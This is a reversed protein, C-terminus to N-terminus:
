QCSQVPTWKEGPKNEWRSLGLFERDNDRKVKERYLSNLISAEVCAEEKTAYFKDHDVQRSKGIALAYNTGSQVVTFFDPLVAPKITIRYVAGVKDKGADKECGVWVLTLM